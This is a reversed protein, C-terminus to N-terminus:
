DDDDFEDGDYEPILEEDQDGVFRDEDPDFIVYDCDPEWCGCSITGDAVIERLDEVGFDLPGTRDVACGALRWREAPSFDNEACVIDLAEFLEPARRDLGWLPDHNAVASAFSNCPLLAAVELDFGGWSDPLDFLRFDRPTLAGQGEANM